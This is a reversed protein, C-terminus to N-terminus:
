GNPALARRGLTSTNRGRKKARDGAFRTHVLHRRTPMEAAAEHVDGLKAAGVIWARGRKM